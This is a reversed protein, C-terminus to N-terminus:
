YTKCKIYPYYYYYRARLRHIPSISRIGTSAATAAPV